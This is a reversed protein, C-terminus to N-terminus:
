EEEKEEDWFFFPCEEDEGDDSAELIIQYDVLPGDDDGPNARRRDLCPVVVMVADAKVSDYQDGYMAGMDSEWHFSGVGRCWVVAKASKLGVGTESCLSISTDGASRSFVVVKKAGMGAAKAMEVIMDDWQKDGTGPIGLICGAVPCFEDDEYIERLVWYLPSSKPDGLLRKPDDRKRKGTACLNYWLALQQGSEIEGVDVSHPRLCAVWTLESAGSSTVPFKLEGSKGSAPHVLVDGGTHPLPLVLVLTGMSSNAEGGRVLEFKDKTERLCLKHLEAKVSYDQVLSAALNGLQHVDLDCALPPKAAKIGEVAAPSPSTSGDFALLTPSGDAQSPLPVISELLLFSM